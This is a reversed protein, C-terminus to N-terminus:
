SKKSKMKEKKEKKKWWKPKPSMYSAFGNTVAASRDVRSVGECGAAWALVVDQCMNAVDQKTFNAKGTRERKFWIKISRVIAVKKKKPSHLKANHPTDVDWTPAGILITESFGTISPEVRFFVTPSTQLRRNLNRAEDSSREHGAKMNSSRNTEVDAGTPAKGCVAKHIKWHARQCTKNCYYTNGAGPVARCRSCQTKSGSSKTCHACPADDNKQQEKAAAYALEEQGETHTRRNKKIKKAMKSCSKEKHSKGWAWRQCIDSCYLTCECKSCHGKAPSCCESCELKEGSAEIFAPRGEPPPLPSSGQKLKEVVIKKRALTKAHAPNLELVHDCMIRAADWEEMKILTAASNALCATHSNLLGGGFFKEESAKRYHHLAKPFRGARFHVNGKRQDEHAFTVRSLEISFEKNKTLVALWPFIPNNKMEGVRMTFQIEPDAGLNLLTLCTSPLGTLAAQAFATIGKNMPNTCTKNIDAGHQVLLELITDKGHAAAIILLTLHMGHELVKRDVPLGGELLARTLDVDGRHIASVIISEDGELARRLYSKRQDIMNIDNIDM